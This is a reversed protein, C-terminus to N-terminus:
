AALRYLTSFKARSYSDRAWRNVNEKDSRLSQPPKKSVGQGFSFVRVYRSRHKTVGNIQPKQWDTVHVQQLEQLRDMLRSATNKHCRLFASVDRETMDRREIERLILVAEASRERAIM